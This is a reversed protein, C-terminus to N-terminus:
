SFYTARDDWTYTFKPGDVPLRQRTRDSGSYVYKVIFWVPKSTAANPIKSWGVYEINSGTYALRKELFSDADGMISIASFDIPRTM